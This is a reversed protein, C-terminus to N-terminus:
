KVENGSEDDASNETAWHTIKEVTELDDDEGAGVTALLGRVATPTVELAKMEEARFTTGHLASLRVNTNSLRAM